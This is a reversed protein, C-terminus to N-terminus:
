RGSRKAAQAVYRIISATTHFDRAVGFILHHHHNGGEERRVLSLSIAVCKGVGEVAM